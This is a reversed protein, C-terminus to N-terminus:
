LWPRYSRPEFIYKGAREGRIGNLVSRRDKWPRGRGEKRCPPEPIVPALIAWQVDTLERANLIPM